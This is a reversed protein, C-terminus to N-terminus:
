WSAYKWQSQHLLCEAMQENFAQRKSM